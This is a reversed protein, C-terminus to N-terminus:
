KKPPEIYGQRKMLETGFGPQYIIPSDESFGGLACITKAMLSEYPVIHDDDDHGPAPLVADLSFKKTGDARFKGFLTNNGYGDFCFIETLSISFSGDKEVTKTFASATNSYKTKATPGVNVYITKQEGKKGAALCHYPMKDVSQDIIQTKARQNIAQFEERTPLTLQRGKVYDNLRKKDEKYVLTSCGQLAISAIVVPLVIKKM